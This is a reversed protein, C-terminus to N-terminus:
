ASLRALVVMVDGFGLKKALADAPKKVWNPAIGRGIGGWTKIRIVSFGNSELLQTLTKKSYLFLHDPIASRWREGMLAAQFGSINPSSLVFLGEASIIRRVEALFSVPDTLHEILHSCHAVEFSADPFGADELTGIHIPIGYTKIGYEASPGCVEVGQVRWGSKKLSSLLRGTACGIDVISKRQEPLGATANEFDIDALALKMLNFYAEENAKEYAFYEEDYREFLNSPLPQPNQYVLSCGPCRVFTYHPYNWLEQTSTSGCVPCSISRRPENGPEKSFTKM